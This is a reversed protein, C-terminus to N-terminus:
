WVNHLTMFGNVAPLETEIQSKVKELTMSTYPSNEIETRLDELMSDCEDRSKLTDAMAMKLAVPIQYNKLNPQTIAEFSFGRDLFTKTTHIIMLTLPDITSSAVQVSVRNVVEVPQFLGKAQLSAVLADKTTLDETTGDPYTVKVAVWGAAMKENSALPSTVNLEVVVGNAFTDMWADGDSTTVKQDNIRKANMLSKLWKIHERFDPDEQISARIQSAHSEGLKVM